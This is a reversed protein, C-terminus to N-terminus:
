DDRMEKLKEIPANLSRAHKSINAWPDDKQAMRRFMNGVNYKQSNIGTTSLEDWDLPTAVPAGPIARISYPAVATQAYANRAIDLYLRGNRKDKRIETTLEGPFRSSLIEAIGKAFDRVTDFDNEPKVPVVVHLGKSGTTMVFPLLNLEDALMKRLREAAKGVKGFGGDPPDLDFILRDPVLLSDVKSLWVHPTICGQNAIYILTAIDNCVVHDLQGGQKKVTATRIWDPFYDSADKQYFGEGEIGDPYRHMTIPRDEIHRLMVGSIKSYYGIMDGKSIGADPFLTKEENSIDIDHKGIKVIM